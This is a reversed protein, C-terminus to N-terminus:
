ELGVDIRRWVLWAAVGVSAYLAAWFPMSVWSRVPWAEGASLATQSALVLLALGVFGVLALM